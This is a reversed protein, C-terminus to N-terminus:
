PTDQEALTAFDGHKAIWFGLYQDDPSCGVINDEPFPPYTQLYWERIRGMLDANERQFRERARGVAEVSWMQGSFDLGEVEYAARLARAVLIDLPLPESM